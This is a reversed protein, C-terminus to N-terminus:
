IFKFANLLKRTAIVFSSPLTTPIGGPNVGIPNIGGPNIGGPNIVANLRTTNTNSSTTNSSLINNNSKNFKYISYFLVILIIGGICSYLIIYSVNNNGGLNNNNGSSEDTMESENMLVLLITNLSNFMSTVIINVVSLDYNATAANNHVVKLSLLEDVHSQLLCIKLLNDDPRIPEGNIDIFISANANSYLLAYNNSSSNIKKTDNNVNKKEEDILLLSDIVKAM